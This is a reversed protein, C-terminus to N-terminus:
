LSEFSECLKALEKALKSAEGEINEMKKNSEAKIADIDEKQKKGVKNIIALCRKPVEDIEQHIRQVSDDMHIRLSNVSSELSNVKAELALIHSKMDATAKNIATETGKKTLLSFPFKGGSPSSSSFCIFLFSRDTTSVVDLAHWVTDLLTLSTCSAV